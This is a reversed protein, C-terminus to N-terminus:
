FHICYIIKRALIYDLTALDWHDFFALDPLLYLWFFGFMEWVTRHSFFYVGKEQFVVDNLAADVLLRLKRAMEPTIELFFLDNGVNHGIHCGQHLGTVLMTVNKKM